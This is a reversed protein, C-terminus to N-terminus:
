EDVGYEIVKNGEESVGEGEGEGKYSDCIDGEVVRCCYVISIVLPGHLQCPLAPKRHM